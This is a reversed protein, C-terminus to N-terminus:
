IDREGPGTQFVFCRNKRQMAHFNGFYSLIRCFGARDPPKASAAAPCRQGHASLVRFPLSFADGTRASSSGAPLLGEERRDAEATRSFITAPLSWDWSM